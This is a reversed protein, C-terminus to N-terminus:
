RLVGRAAARAGASARTGTRTSQVATCTRRLVVNCPAVSFPGQVISPDWVKAAYTYTRTRAVITHLSIPPPPRTFPRTRSRGGSIRVNRNAVQTCRHVRQKTGASAITTQLQTASPYEAIPSRLLPMRSPRHRRHRAPVVEGHHAGRLPLQEGPSRWLTYCMLLTDSV